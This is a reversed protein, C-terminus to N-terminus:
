KEGESPVTEVKAKPPRGRAKKVKPTQNDDVKKPRGRSKKVKEVSPEVESEQDHYDKDSQVTAGLRSFIKMLEAKQTKPVASWQSKWNTIFNHVAQRLTSNRSRLTTGCITTLWYFFSAPVSFFISHPKENEYINPLSPYNVFTEEDFPDYVELYLVHKYYDMNQSFLQDLNRLNFVAPLEDKHVLTGDARYASVVYKYKDVEEYDNLRDKFTSFSNKAKIIFAAIQNEDCADDGVISKLGSAIEKWELGKAEHTLDSTPKEFLHPKLNLACDMMDKFPETRDGSWPNPSYETLTALMMLHGKQIKMTKSAADIEKILSESLPLSFYNTTASSRFLETYEAQNFWHPKSALKTTSIYLPIGAKYTYYSVHFSEDSHEITYNILDVLTKEPVRHCDFFSVNRKGVFRVVSDQSYKFNLGTLLPSKLVLDSM